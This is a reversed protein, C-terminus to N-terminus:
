PMHRRAATCTDADIPCARQEDVTALLWRLHRSIAYRNDAIRPYLRSALRHIGPLGLLAARRHRGIATWALRIADVGRVLSGDPRVGHIVRMLESRPVGLPAPDFEATAVDVFRLRGDRNRAMLARMETVCLPCNGDYLLTLPYDTM